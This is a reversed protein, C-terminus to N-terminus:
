RGPWRDELAGVSREHKLGLIQQRVDKLQKEFRAGAAAILVQMKKIEIKDGAVAALGGTDATTRCSPSVPLLEQRLAQLQDLTPVDERDAKKALCANLRGLQAM